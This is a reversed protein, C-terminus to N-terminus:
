FLKTQANKAARQSSARMRAAEESALKQRIEAAQSATPILGKGRSRQFTAVVPCVAKDHKSFRAECHQCMPDRREAIAALRQQADELEFGGANPNALVKRLRKEEIEDPTPKM